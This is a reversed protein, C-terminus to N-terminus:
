KASRVSLLEADLMRIQAEITARTLRDSGCTRLDCVLARRLDLLERPARNPDRTESKV